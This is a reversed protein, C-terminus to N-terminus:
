ATAAIVAIEVKIDPSALASQVCARAPGVEGIWADWVTNLEDKDAINTLWITASVINDKHTGAEALLADIKDLVQKTQSKVDKGPDDPVQGALYVTNGHIVAHSLRKGPKIRKIM